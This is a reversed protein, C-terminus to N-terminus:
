FSVGEYLLQNELCKGAGEVVAALPDKATSVLVRLDESIKRDIGKILAGGGSLALGRSIIDGSLEPPTNELAQRVASVISSVVETMAERVERATIIISAPAGSILSRGRVEMEVGDFEEHASGITKKVLEATAEGILLHHRRRLHNIISEDIADGGERVSLSYVIDKLSIVAVDTTGGGIDVIMSATAETVPLNCGIAAAMAEDILRVDKAESGISQHIARREVETISSPVGVMIRPKTLARSNARVKTLFHRLMFAAAEFDAIVGTRVPRIVKVGEPTRGIMPKAELGVAVPLKRAGEYRLAVLSPENLVIGRDKEYILTNATGLDIAIDRAVLRLM